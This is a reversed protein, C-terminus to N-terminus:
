RSTAIKLLEEYFENCKKYNKGTHILIVLSGNFKKCINIVPICLNLAESIDYDNYKVDFFGFDMISTAISLLNMKKRNVLDYQVVPRSTGNRFGPKEPYSLTYEITMNNQDWIRPTSEINYQLMHQRGETVITNTIKELGTKQKRWKSSNNYTLYGPHFGVKHGRKLINHVMTNLLQPYRLCYDSNESEKTPGMFFFSSKLNNKESQDMLFNFSNQPEGPIYAKLRKFASLPQRRKFFDGIAYRLPLLPNHYSKLSDVDHTPVINYKTKYMIKNEQFIIKALAQMAYDAPACDLLNNSYLMDSYISYRNYRDLKKSELREEIRSILSFVIAFFDYEIKIINNNSYDILKLEKIMLIKFNKNNPIIGNKDLQFIKDFIRLPININNKLSKRSYNLYINAEQKDQVVKLEYNLSMIDLVYNIESRYKEISNDLILYLKIM